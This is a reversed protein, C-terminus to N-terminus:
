HRAATHSLHKITKFINCSFKRSKKMKINLDAILLLQMKSFFNQVLWTGKLECQRLKGRELIPM